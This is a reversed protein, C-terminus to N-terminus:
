KSSDADRVNCMVRETNYKKFASGIVDFLCSHVFVLYTCSLDRHYVSGNEAVYVQGSQGYEGAGSYM